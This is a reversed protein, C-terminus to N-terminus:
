PTVSTPLVYGKSGAPPNARAQRSVRAAQNGLLACPMQALHFRLARFSPTCAPPPLPAVPRRALGEGERPLLVPGHTARQGQLPDPTSVGAAKGLLDHGTCRWRSLRLLRAM